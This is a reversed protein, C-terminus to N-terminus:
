EKSSYIIQHRLFIQRIIDGKKTTKGSQNKFVVFTFGKERLDIESSWNYVIKNDQLFQLIKRLKKPNGELELNPGCPFKKFKIKGIYRDLLNLFSRRPTKIINFIVFRLKASKIQKQFLKINKERLAKIALSLDGLNNRIGWKKISCPNNIHYDIVKKSYRAIKYSDKKPDLSQIQFIRYGEELAQESIYFRGKREMIRNSCIKFRDILPIGWLIYGGFLDVQLTQLPNLHHFRFAFINLNDNKHNAYHTCLTLHDWRLKKAVQYFIPILTELEGVVFLDLDHNFDPFNEYNRAIVPLFGNVELQNLLYVVTEISKKKLGISSM